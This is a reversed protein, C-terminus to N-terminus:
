KKPKNERFAKAWDPKHVQKGRALSLSDAAVDEVIVSGSGIFAGHGINVPAVLASNSGIFSNEGIITKYKNFGDYNCTITGAGINAGAGVEADGIYSLHNIKAGKGVLTKKTEVFNGIKAGELLVTGERLRAYPGVISQRGITAGEFYSYARIHAGTLVEVGVGFVVHPEILVDQEIQTDYSFYVSTPDQLTVGGIMAAERKRNQFILEAQSLQLRNNVGSVEDESTILYGTKLGAGGYAEVMDTLYYEGQANANGLSKLMTVAQQAKFGM